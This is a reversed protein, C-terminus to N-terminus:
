CRLQYAALEVKEKFAVGMIEVIKYFEDVFEQLEKVIKSGHFELPNLRTFDRVSSAPTPTKSSAVVQSLM